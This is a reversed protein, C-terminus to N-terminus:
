LTIRKIKLTSYDKFYILEIVVYCYRSNNWGEKIEKSKALRNFEKLAEKKNNTSFREWSEGDNNQNEVGVLVAYKKATKKENEQAANEAATPQKKQM